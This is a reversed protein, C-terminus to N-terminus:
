IQLCTDIINIRIKLEYNHASLEFPLSRLMSVFVFCVFVSPSALSRGLSFFSIDMVLAYDSVLLFKLNVLRKMMM